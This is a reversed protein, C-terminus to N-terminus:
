TQKTFSSAHSRIFDIRLDELSPQLDYFKGNLDSFREYISTEKLFPKYKSFRDNAGQWSHMVVLHPKILVLAERFLDLHGSAGLAVLGADVEDYFGEPEINWFFQAFGGNEVERQLVWAAWVHRQSAPMQRLSALCEEQNGQTLQSEIADMVKDVNIVTKSM